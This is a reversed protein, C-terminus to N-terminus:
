FNVLFKFWCDICVYIYYNLDILLFVSWSCKLILWKYLLFTLYQWTWVKPFHLNEAKGEKINSYILYRRTQISWVLTIFIDGQATPCQSSKRTILIIAMNISIFFYDINAALSANKCPQQPIWINSQSHGCLGHIHLHNYISLNCYSYGTFIYINIWRMSREKNTSLAKTWERPVQTPTKSWVWDCTRHWCDWVPHRTCEAWM